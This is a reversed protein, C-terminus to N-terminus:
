LHAIHLKDLLNRPWNIYEYIEWIINSYLKLLIKMDCLLKHPLIYKLNWVSSIDCCAPIRFSKSFFFFRNHFIQNCTFSQSQILLILRPDPPPALSYSVPILGLISSSPICISLSVPLLLSPSLSEQTKKAQSPFFFHEREPDGTLLSPWRTAEQSNQDLLNECGWRVASEKSAFLVISNLGVTPM